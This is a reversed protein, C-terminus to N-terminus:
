ETRRADQDMREVGGHRGDPAFVSDFCRTGGTRILADWLALVRRKRLRSCFGNEGRARRRSRPRQRVGELCRLCSQWPHSLPSDLAKQDVHQTNQATLGSCGRSHGALDCSPSGRCLSDAAAGIQTAPLGQTQTEPREGRQPMELGVHLGQLPACGHTDRPGPPSSDCRMANADCRM